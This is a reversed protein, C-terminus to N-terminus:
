GELGTSAGHLIGPSQASHAQHRGQPCEDDSLCGQPWVKVVAMSVPALANHSCLLHHNHRPRPPLTRPNRPVRSNQPEPHLVQQGSAYNDRLRSWAMGGM